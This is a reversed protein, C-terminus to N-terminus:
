RPLDQRVHPIRQNPAGAHLTLVPCPSHHVGNEAASGFLARKLGAHGAFSRLAEDKEEPRVPVEGLKPTPKINM